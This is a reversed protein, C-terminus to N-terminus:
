LGGELLCRWSVREYPHCDPFGFPEWRPCDRCMWVWREEVIGDCTREDSLWIRAPSYARQVITDYGLLRCCGSCDATAYSSEWAPVHPYVCVATPAPAYAAVIMERQRIEVVAKWWADSRPAAGSLLVACLWVMFAPM